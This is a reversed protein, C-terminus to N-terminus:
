RHYTESFFEAIARDYESTHSFAKVMLHQRLALSLGNTTTLESIITAYDDPDVVVAVFAHNKAASRIMAPGGIDINEVAEPLTVGPKAITERFPYLNVIVMDIPIIGHTAMDQRHSPNDRVGLIAGHIKPHLTKIRGDMMEPFGTYSEVPQVDIGKEKLLRSTGGTSLISVGLRTLAQALEDIGRKDSVSILARKIPLLDM